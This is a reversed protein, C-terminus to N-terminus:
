KPLATRLAAVAARAKTPSDYWYEELLPRLETDIVSNFWTAHDPINDHLSPTVYSHGIRFQEGLGADKAIEENLAGVAAAIAATVAEPVGCKQCWARWDDNLQTELSIFAFRRRLALDVLALSRDAINMTGIVFLNDPLSIREGPKRRYALEIGEAEGRKSAEILTLLEGFIQAPNGRNIEEIVVVVPEKLAHAAQAAELFAGDVLALKGDGDPRWGRVFDEYSLSPHFQIVRLQQSVVRPDRTGFLAYALRMALWTKGTGPPGQLIINKKLRLRSVAGELQAESLFSGDARIDSVDYPVIEADETVPNDDVKGTGHSAAAFRNAFYPVQKWFDIDQEENGFAFLILRRALDNAPDAEVITTRFTYFYWTRPPDLLQWDVSVTRGDTAAATVTGIAKIRMCSVITGQSDFPLDYKQTFSSKLAIRDGPQMRAVQDTFKDDYGNQWVGRSIFDNTQDADGWRAGVFWFHREPNSFLSAANDEIPPAVKDPDEETTSFHARVEKFLKLAAPHDLHTERGLPTLAWIGRRSGDILEARTLYFRGWGIWNDFKRNGGASKENLEQEVGALEEVKAVTDRATAEGGLARLADLIVGFFRVFRPGDAHPSKPTPSPLELEEPATPAWDFIAQQQESVFQAPDGVTFGAAEAATIFGQRATGDLAGTELNQQNVVISSPLPWGRKAAYTLLDGLHTNVEYRVENWEAGNAKAIQGYSIFARNRAAALIAKYTVGLDLKAM